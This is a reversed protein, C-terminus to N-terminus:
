TQEKAVDSKAARGNQASWMSAYVGGASMLEDHSGLEVIKGRELVAIRDADRITSLRHAIVIATRGQRLRHFAQMVVRETTADLASTPEDLVLVDANRVFARAMALRQREGGSLSVGREALVTDAGSELRSVFGAADASALAEEIEHPTADVGFAVNGSVSIPLLLPEQSVWATRRRYERLPLDRLDHCDITVRGHQPDILRLALSALTSKGSGTIGVLGLTSAAPINLTLGDFVPQGEYGFHVEEFRIHGNLPPLEELEPQDPVEPAADLIEGVREAQGRLLQLSLATRALEAFKGKLTTAYGLFVLLEGLMLQDDLVRRAGIWTVVAVAIAPVLGAVFEGAERVLVHRRNNEIVDSAMVEFRHAEDAERGYAQVLPLGVMSQQVHAKLRGSLESARKGLRHAPKRLMLTGWAMFPASALVVLALLHDMQWLVISLSVSSVVAAVPGVLLLAVASQAIYSDGFVRQLSEGIPTRSHFVISRRQLADFQDEALDYTAQQGVKTWLYSSVAELMATAAFIALQAAVLWVVLGEPSAAGPLRATAFRIVAPVSDSKRLVGDILLALPWPQLLSTLVMAATVLVLMM